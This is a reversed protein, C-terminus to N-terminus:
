TYPGDLMLQAGIVNPLAAIARVLEELWPEDRWDDLTAALRAANAGAASRRLREVEAVSALGLAVQEAVRTLFPSGALLEPIAFATLRGIEEDNSRLAFSVPPGGEDGFSAAVPPVGPPCTALRCGGMPFFQAILELTTEVFLALDPQASAIKSLELLFSTQLLQQLTSGEVGEAQLRELQEAQATDWAALDIM